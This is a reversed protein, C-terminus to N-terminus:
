KKWMYTLIWEYNSKRATEFGYLTSCVKDPNSKTVTPRQFGLLSRESSCNVKSLLLVENSLMQRYVVERLSFFFDPRLDIFLSYM